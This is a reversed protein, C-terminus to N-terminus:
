VPHIAKTVAPSIKRAVDSLFARTQIVVHLAAGSGAHRSSNRGPLVPLAHVQCQFKQGSIISPNQLIKLPFHLASGLRQIVLLGSTVPIQHLADPLNGLLLLHRLSHALVPIDDSNGHILLIVIRLRDDLGEKDAVSTQHSAFVEIHTMDAALCLFLNQRLKQLLEIRSSGEDRPFNHNRLRHLLQGLLPFSLNRNQNRLLPLLFPQHLQSRLVCRKKQMLILLPQFPLFAACDPRNM